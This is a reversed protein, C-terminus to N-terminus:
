AKSFFSFDEGGHSATLRFVKLILTTLVKVRGTRSMTDMLLKVQQPNPTQSRLGVNSMSISATYGKPQLANQWHFAPRDPGKKTPANLSCFVVHTFCYGGGGDVIATANRLFNGLRDNAERAIRLVANLRDATEQRAQGPAAFLFHHGKHRNGGRNRATRGDELHANARAFDQACSVVRVNQEGEVLMGVFVVDGRQALSANKKVIRVMHLGLRFPFPLIPMHPHRDGAPGDLGDAAC